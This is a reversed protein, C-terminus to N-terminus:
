KKRIITLGDRLPIMASELLESKAVIDNFAMIGQTQSSHPGTETVHGDWLTNDALIFGGKKILPLIKKLYQPYERKDADILAMDFYLPPFTDMVKLAEGIHLTVKKGHPSQSLNYSIQDELEDDAEITHIVAEEKLAEAMCLASYGTYTGLELVRTPQIMATIMKLLRGQIHGSCMRGNLRYLNTKRDIEKLLPPESSIHNEIYEELLSDM